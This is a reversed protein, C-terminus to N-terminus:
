QQQKQRRQIEELALNRLDHLVVLEAPGFEHPRTGFLCFTGVCSGEALILPAGAYFRLRPEAHVLPNDAFRLDHLADQVILDARDHVVHACFSADRSAERFEMGYCSKVWQRESDVLSLLAIPVGFTLAAIRTLRDFRAEPKTDLIALAHLAELRRAEDPPLQARVWRFPVHQMSARIRARTYDLSLPRQLWDIAASGNTQAEPRACDAIVIVPLEDPGPPVSERLAHALAIGDVQPPAHQVIALPPRAKKVRRQLDAEDSVARLRLGELSLAQELLTKLGADSVYILVPRDAVELGIATSEFLDEPEPRPARDPEGRLELSQGEAAVVVEVVTSAARARRRMAEVIADLAADTRLPDHHTLVLKGVGAEQGVRLAYECTSHGWGIKEPYERATYQADHIVVDAGTLFDVYRRDYGTLEGAGSALEAAHPEHDCCYVMSAGDCEIRYGLTLATHNLYHTTIRVDDISFTGEVLDHYRITAGLQELSVPFYTHEMQGALTEALSQSLGKPGYIDWENEAVRLPAFFPMGQIHDWHTHSILMHGRRAATGRAQLARGLAFGGTGCDIVILTGRDSLVEVCSTNGGYRTTTPDPRAISGRTGWFQIRM